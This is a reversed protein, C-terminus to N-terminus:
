MAAKVHFYFYIAAVVLLTGLAGYLWRSKTRGLRRVVPTANDSTFFWEWNFIAASLAIIGVLLFMTQLINHIIM